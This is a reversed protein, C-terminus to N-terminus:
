DRRCVFSKVPIFFLLNNKGCSSEIMIFSVRLELPIVNSFENQEVGLLLCFMLNPESFPRLM